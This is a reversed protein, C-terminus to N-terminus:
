HLRSTRARAPRKVEAKPASSEVRPKRASDLARLDRYLRAEMLITQRVEHVVREFTKVIDEGRRTVTAGAEIQVMLAEAQRLGMEALERLIRAHRERLEDANSRDPKPSKPMTTM